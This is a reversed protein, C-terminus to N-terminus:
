KNKFQEFWGRLLNPMLKKDTGIKSSTYIYDCSKNLLEMVEEESYSQKEALRYGRKFADIPVEQTLPEGEYLRKYNSRAAEELTEQKPKDEWKVGNNFGAVFSYMDVEKNYKAFDIYSNARAEELTEQKM